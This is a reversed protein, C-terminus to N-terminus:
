GRIELIAGRVGPVAGKVLLLNNEANIQVVKLNKVTIRDSGRRGAMRLGKAVRGGARGGGSITGVERESHKQGHTRRGGAFNHRKVGGQFGKGKSTGVVTVEDGEKFMSVDIKDGRKVAIDSDTRFERLVKFTGLDKSHGAEAKTALTARKTGFGFQVAKYGDKAMERVQTVTIPGASIVTVPVAIGKDTFIQTMSVKEGILFKMITKFM